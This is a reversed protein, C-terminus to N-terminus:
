RVRMLTRRGVVLLSFGMAVMAWTTPEPIAVLNLFLKGNITTADPDFFDHDTRDGFAFVYGSGVSQYHIYDGALTTGGTIGNGPSTGISSGVINYPPGQSAFVGGTLPAAAPSSGVINLSSGIGSLIANGGTVGSSGSDSLVLLLGGGNVWASLDALEGATPSVGAEGVVFVNDNALNAATISEDAEVTHGASIV